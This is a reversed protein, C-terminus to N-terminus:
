RKGIRKAGRHIPGFDFGGAHRQPPVHGVRDLAADGLAGIRRAGAQGALGLDGRAV